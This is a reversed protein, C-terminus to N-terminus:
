SDRLMNCGSNFQSSLSIRPFLVEQNISTLTILGVIKHNTPCIALIYFHMREKYLLM